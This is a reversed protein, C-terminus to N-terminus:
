STLKVEKPTQAAHPHETGPYVKLKTLLKKSLFNRPLMGKVAKTIIQGPHKEQMKGAPTSTLGGMYGSHSHYLKDELKKGTLKVHAANIVVVFDGNDIHPTYTPRHKGRLMDAIKTAARGLVQDKVDVIVWDRKAEEKKAMFTGM